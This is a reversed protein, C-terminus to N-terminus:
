RYPPGLHGSFLKYRAAVSVHKRRDAEVVCQMQPIRPCPRFRNCGDWLRVTSFGESHGPRRKVRGQYGGTSRIAHNPDKVHSAHLSRIRPHRSCPAQAAKIHRPPRWQNRFKSIMGPFDQANLKGRSSATHKQRSSGVTHHYLPIQRLSLGHSLPHYGPFVAPRQRVLKM